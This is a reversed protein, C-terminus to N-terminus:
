SGQPPQDHWSRPWLDAVRSPPPSTSALCIPPPHLAAQRAVLNKTPHGQDDRHDDLRDTQIRRSRRPMWRSCALDTQLRGSRRRADTEYDSPRRNSDSRPSLLRLESCIYQPGTARRAQRKLDDREAQVPRPFGRGRKALYPDTQEVSRGGILRFRPTREPLRRRPPSVRQAPRTPQGSRSRETTARWSTM